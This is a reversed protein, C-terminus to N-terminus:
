AIEQLRKHLAGMITSVTNWRMKLKNSSSTMLYERLTDQEAELEILRVAIISRIVSKDILELDKVTVSM